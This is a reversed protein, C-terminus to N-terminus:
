AGAESAIDAFAFSPKEQANRRGKMRKARVGQAFRIPGVPHLPSASPNM